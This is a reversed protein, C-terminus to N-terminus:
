NVIKEASAMEKFGFITINVGRQVIYNLIQMHVM